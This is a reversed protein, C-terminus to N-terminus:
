LTQRYERNQSIPGYNEASRSTWTGNPDAWPDPYSAPFGNELKHRFRCCLSCYRYAGAMGWKKPYGVKHHHPGLGSSLYGLCPIHYSGVPLTQLGLGMLINIDFDCVGWIKINTNDGAGGVIWCCRYQSAHISGMSPKRFSSGDYKSASPRLTPSRPAKPKCGDRLLYFIIKSGPGGLTARNLAKHDRNSPIQPTKSPLQPPAPFFGLINRKYGM